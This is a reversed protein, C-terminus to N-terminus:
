GEHRLLYLDGSDPDGIYTYLTMRGPRGGVSWSESACGDVSVRVEQTRTGGDGTEYTWTGEGDCEEVVTRRSPGGIDTAYQDLGAAAVTGNAAFRLTGGRGDSWVGVLREPTLRPPQYEEALGTTFALVCLVVAAVVAGTGYVLTSLVFQWWQFARARAHELRALLGPVVPVAAAVLWTWAVGAPGAGAWLALGVAPVATGVASVVPVGWWADRGAVRTTIRRGLEVMPLVLVLSVALGIVAGFLALVPMLVVAFANPGASEPSERTAGYAIAVVVAVGAEVCLAATSTLLAGRRRNGASRSRGAEPDDAREPIQRDM